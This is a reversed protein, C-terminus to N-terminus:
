SSPVLSSNPGLTNRIFPFSSSWSTLFCSTCKANIPFGLTISVLVFNSSKNSYTLTISSSNTSIITSSKGFANGRYPTNTMM